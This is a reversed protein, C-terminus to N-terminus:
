GRERPSERAMRALAAARSEGGRIRAREYLGPAGVLSIDTAAMGSGDTHINVAAIEEIRRQGSDDRALHVVIDIGQVIQNRVAALVLNPGATLALNELRYLAETASNAHVTCMSGYHGTNAAMLFDLAAADRVEGIVLRDPRMRMSNRVLQRITVEGTGELNPPRAELSVHHTSALQLEQADEIVILRERHPPVCMCMANLLTTKGSGASGSVLVNMRAEVICRLLGAHHPGLMGTAALDQLGLPKPRFRRITVAWGRTALPPIIVNIRAGGPLRADVYPSLNDLRRGLPALIRGVTERLHREDRFCVESAHIVGDREFYVETPHNVMIDTVRPDSLLPELPGFGALEDVVAEALSERTTGPVVISDRRLVSRVAELLGARSTGGELIVPSERLLVQRVASVADAIDAPAAPAVTVTSPGGRVAGAPARDSPDVSEGQLRLRELLRTM